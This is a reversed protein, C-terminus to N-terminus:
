PIITSNDIVNFYSYKRIVTRKIIMNEYIIRKMGQHRLNNFQHMSIRNSIKFYEFIYKFYEDFPRTLPPVTESAGEKRGCGQFM